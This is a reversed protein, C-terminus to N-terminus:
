QAPYYNSTLPWSWAGAAKGGHFSGGIGLPYFTLHVGSSLSFYFIKIDGPSSRPGRRRGVLLWDSYRGLRIWCSFFPPKCLFACMEELVSMDVIVRIIKLNPKWLEWQCISISSDTIAEKNTLKNMEVTRTEIRPRESCFTYHIQVLESILAKTITRWGGWEWLTAVVVACNSTVM